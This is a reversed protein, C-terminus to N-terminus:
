TENESRLKNDLMLIYFACLMGDDGVCRFSFGVHVTSCSRNCKQVTM